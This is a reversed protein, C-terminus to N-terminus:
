DIIHHISRGSDCYKQGNADLLVAHGKSYCKETTDTVDSKMTTWVLVILAVILCTGGIVIVYVERGFM